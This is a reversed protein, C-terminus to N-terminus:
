KFFFMLAKSFIFDIIYIFVTILFTAVIVVQTSERLETMSPWTVKKMEQATEIFFQQLKKIM